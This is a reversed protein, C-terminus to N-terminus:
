VTQPYEGCESLFFVNVLWKYVYASTTGGQNSCPSLSGFVRTSGNCWLVNNTTWTPTSGM